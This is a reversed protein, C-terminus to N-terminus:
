DRLYLKNGIGFFMAMRSNRVPTMKLVRRRPGDGDTMSVAAQNVDHRKRSISRFAIDPWPLFLLSIM